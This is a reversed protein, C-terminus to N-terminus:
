NNGGWNAEDVKWVGGEKVLTIRGAAPSPQDGPRSKQEATVRLTAHKGDPAITKGAVSYTKPLMHALMDLMERRMPAPMSALSAGKEATGYKLMGDFNATLGARHFKAYVAEPDDAASAALPLAALLAAALLTQLAKAIQM